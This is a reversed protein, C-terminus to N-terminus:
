ADYGTWFARGDDDTYPLVFNIAAGAHVCARLLAGLEPLHVIVDDASLISVTPQPEGTM